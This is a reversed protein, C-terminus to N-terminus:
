PGDFNVLLGIGPGGAVAASRWREVTSVRVITPVVAAVLDGSLRAAWRGAFPVELGLRVGAGLYPSSLPASEDFRAARLSGVTLLGCAAGYEWVHVCPALTASILSTRLGLADNAAPLDGRGEVSLSVGPWRLGLSLSFGVAAAPAVGFAIGTGLGVRVKPWRSLPLKPPAEVVVPPLVPPPPPASPPPSFPADVGIGIRIVLVINRVLTSCTIRDQYEGVWLVAGAANVLTADARNQTGQRSLTVRLLPPPAFDAILPPETPDYGFQAMLAYLFGREDPCGDVGPGHDYALRIAIHPPPDAARAPDVGLLAALALALAIWTPRLM